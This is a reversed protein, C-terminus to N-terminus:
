AASAQEAGAKERAAVLTRIRARDAATEPTFIVLTLDPRDNVALDM